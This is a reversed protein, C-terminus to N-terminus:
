LKKHKELFVCMLCLRKESIQIVVLLELQLNRQHKRFVMQLRRVKTESIKPLNVSIIGYEPKVGKAAFDSVCAVISKRAADGIKMKPPIDTSQVLTDTKAVIKTKGLQFFEVDEAVFRKNLSNQFIKIIATEDLNTM